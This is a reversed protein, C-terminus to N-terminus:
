VPLEGNSAGAVKLRTAQTSCAPTQRTRPPMCRSASASAAATRARPPTMRSPSYTARISAAPPRTLPTSVVSPDRMGALATTKLPSECASARPSSPSSTRPATPGIAAASRESDASVHHM